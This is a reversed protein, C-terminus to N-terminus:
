YCVEMYIPKLGRTGHLEFFRSVMEIIGIIYTGTELSFSCCCERLMLVM